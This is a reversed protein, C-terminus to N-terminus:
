LQDPQRAPFLNEISQAILLHMADNVSDSLPPANDESLIAARVEPRRLADLRQKLPLDAIKLYSPRRQFLHNSQWSLLVGGPRSATQPHLHAGNANAQAVYAMVRKWADPDEIFEVILFTIPLGTELSLRNMWDLESELRAENGLALGAQGVSGGPVLEFVAGSRQMARGIAFVEDETAFTGPCRIAM